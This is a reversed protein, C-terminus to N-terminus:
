CVLYPWRSVLLSVNVGPFLDRLGLLKETTAPLDSTLKLLIDARTRALKGVQTCGFEDVWGACRVHATSSHNVWLDRRVIDPMLLRLDRVGVSRTMSKCLM